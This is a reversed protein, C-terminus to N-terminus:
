DPSRSRPSGGARPSKARTPESGAFPAATNGDIDLTAPALGLGVRPRSTGPPQQSVHGSDCKLRAIVEGVQSALARDVAMEGLWGSVDLDSHALIWRLLALIPISSGKRLATALFRGARPCKIYM